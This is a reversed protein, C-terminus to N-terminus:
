EVKYDQEIKYVRLKEITPIPVDFRQSDGPVVGITSVVIHRVTDYSERQGLYQCLAVGDNLTFGVNAVSLSGGGDKVIGKGKKFTFGILKNKPLTGLIRELDAGTVEQPHEM